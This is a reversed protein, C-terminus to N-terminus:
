STGRLYKAQNDISKRLEDKVNKLCTNMEECFEEATQNMTKSNIEDFEIRPNLGYNLYFPSYKTSTSVSNNYAFEALPLLKDWNDTKNNCYKRLYDGLIRNIREVQGNTQPHFATSPTTEIGLLRNLERMFNSVFQPGRDSIIQNPLGHHKWVHDRFLRAIGESTVTDYTPIAHVIKSLRDVTVM